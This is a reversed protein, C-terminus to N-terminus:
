RSIQKKGNVIVVGRATETVKRGSLGYRAPPQVVPTEPTLPRVLTAEDQTNPSFVAVIRLNQNFPIDMQPSTGIITGTFYGNMLKWGQFVANGKPEAELTLVGDTEVASVLGRSEDNSQVSWTLASQAPVVQVIFDYCAGIVDDEAGTTGTETVRIRLRYQGLPVDAPLTFSVQSQSFEVDQEFVGDKDWDAYAFARIAPGDNAVTITLPLEGGQRVEMKQSTFVVHPNSPAKSATYHLPTLLDAGEADLASLYASGVNGCPISYLQIARAYASTEVVPPNYAYESEEIQWYSNGRGTRIYYAVIGTAGFNLGLTGDTQVSIAQDTSAMYYFGATAAGPTEDKKIQFEVPTSGMPVLSSLTQVSSQVYQGTTANKIYYCDENGTPELVWWFPKDEGLAATGINMGNQYMYASANNNRHITYYKDAAFPEDGTPTDDGGVTALTVKGIGAYCGLASIKILTVQLYLPNTATAKEAATMTQLSHFLGDKQDSVTCIDTDVAKQAFLTVDATTGIASQFQFYRVTNGSNSQAAGSANLAFVDAEVTNFSFDSPLGEICFLYSIRAGEDNAYSNPALVSGNTIAAAGSTKLAEFSTSVLTASVGDTSAGAADTVHVTVSSVDSGTRQFTLCIDKPTTAARGVLAFAWFVTLLWIQKTNTM